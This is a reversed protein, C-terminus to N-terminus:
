ANELKTDAVIPVSSINDISVEVTDAAIIVPTMTAAEEKSIRKFLQAHAHEPSPDYKEGLGHIASDYKVGKPIWVVNRNDYGDKAPRGRGIETGDLVLCRRAIVTTDRKTYTRKPTSDTKAKPERNKKMKAVKGPTLKSTENQPTEPQITASIEAGGIADSQTEASTNNSNLNTDM